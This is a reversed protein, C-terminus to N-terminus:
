DVVGCPAIAESLFGSALQTVSVCQTLSFVGMDFHVPFDLVCDWQLEQWQCLSMSSPPFERSGAEGQTAFPKSKTDLAESSFNRNLIGSLSLHLFKKLLMDALWIWHYMLIIVGWSWFPNIEPVERMTWHNLVQRAICPIHTQDKTLSSLDWLDWSLQAQACSSVGGAEITSGMLWLWSRFLYMNKVFLSKNWSHLSSTSTIGVVLTICWIWFLPYFDDSQSLIHM